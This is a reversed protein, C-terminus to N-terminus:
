EPEVSGEDTSPSSDLLSEDPDVEHVGILKGRPKKLTSGLMSLSQVTESSKVLGYELPDSRAKM